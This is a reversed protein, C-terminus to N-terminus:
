AAADKGCWGVHLIPGRLAPNCHLIKEWLAEVASLSPLFTIPVHHVLVADQHSTIQAQEGKPLARLWAEENWLLRERDSASHTYVDLDGSHLVQAGAVQVSALSPLGSRRLIEQIEDM